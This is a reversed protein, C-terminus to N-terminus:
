TRLLSRGVGDFALAPQSIGQIRATFAYATVPQQTVFCPLV